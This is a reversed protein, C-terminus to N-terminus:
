DISIDERFAGRKQRSRIYNEMDEPTTLWTGGIKQAKLRGKQAIQKLYAHSLGYMESAEPLSILRDKADQLEKNSM